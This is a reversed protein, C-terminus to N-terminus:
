QLNFLKIDPLGKSHKHGCHEGDISIDRIGLNPDPIGIGLMLRVKTKKFIKGTYPQLIKKIKDGDWCKCFGTSYGKEVGALAAAGSSIGISMISDELGEPSKFRTSTDHDQNDFWIMLLNARVQSNRRKTESDTPNYAIDFISNIITRDTTYALSYYPINQKSPMTICAEIIYDIDERPITEHELWNRQCPNAGKAFELVSM